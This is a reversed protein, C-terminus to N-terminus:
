FSATNHPRRQALKLRILTDDDSQYVGGAWEWVWWMCEILDSHNPYTSFIGWVGFVSSFGLSIFCTQLIFMTSKCCRFTLNNPYSSINRPSVETRNESNFSYPNNRETYLSEFHVHMLSFFYQVFNFM